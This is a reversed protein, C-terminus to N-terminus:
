RKSRYVERRHGCEVACVVLEGDDIQCLVRYDGVRYRWLDAKDGVLSKGWLRPNNCGEIHATMWDMILRADFRDMKRLAKLAQTGYFLHCVIM